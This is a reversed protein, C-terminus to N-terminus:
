VEVSRGEWEAVGHRPTAGAASSSPASGSLPRGQVAPSGPPLLPRSLTPTGGGLTSGAPASGADSGAASPTPPLPTALGPPPAQADSPPAAATAEVTVFVGGVLVGPTSAGTGAGAVRDDTGGGTVGGGSGGSRRIGVYSYWAPFGGSALSLALLAVNAPLFSGAALAWQLFGLQSLGALGGILYVGGMTAGLTRFGFTRSLYASMTSFIFARWAIFLLFVAVQAQLVPVCNLASLAVLLGWQSWLAARLGLRDIIPGSVFQLFFGLPSIINFIGTYSSGSQGLLTMQVDVTGLFTNYRAMAVAFFCL